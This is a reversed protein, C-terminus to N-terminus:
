FVISSTSIQPRQSCWENNIIRWILFLVVISLLCAAGWLIARKGLWISSLLFGIGCLCVFFALILGIYGLLFCSGGVVLAFGLVGFYHNAQVKMKTAGLPGPKSSHRCKIVDLGSGSDPKIKNNVILNLARRQEARQSHQQIANCFSFSVVDLRLPLLGWTTRM